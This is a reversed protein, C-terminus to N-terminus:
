SAAKECEANFGWSARNNMDRYLLGPSQLVTVSRYRVSEVNQNAIKSLAIAALRAKTAATAENAYQARFQVRPMELTYGTTSLNHEPPGGPYQTIVMGETKGAPLEGVFLDTGVTGVSEDELWEALEADAPM